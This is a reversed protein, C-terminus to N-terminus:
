GFTLVPKVIKQFIYCSSRYACTMIITKAEKGFNIKRKNVMDWGTNQGSGNLSLALNSNLAVLTVESFRSVVTNHFHQHQCRRV